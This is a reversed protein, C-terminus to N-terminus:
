GELNRRLKALSRSLKSRVSGPTMGVQGAIEASTFGAVSALLVIEREDEALSALADKLSVTEAPDGGPVFGSEGPIEREGPHEGAIRDGDTGEGADLSAMQRRRIQERIRAACASGLIRFLWVSFAGPAKLDRIEKWASLVCEQVADEADQPSGLRYYAYRYLSTKYESYLSVFAEQDGTRAKEIREILDM